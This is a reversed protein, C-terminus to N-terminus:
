EDLVYHWTGDPGIGIRWGQYRDAARMAKVDRGKGLRWLTVEDEPDLAKIPTEAFYPWVFMEQSTGARIRAGQTSLADILRAMMERGEGDASAAKLAAVPDKEGSRTFIPRVESMEMVVIIRAIDGTRAADIIRQRTQAVRAPLEAEDFIIEAKPDRAGAEAPKPVPSPPAPSAPAPSAPAPKAPAPPTQAGAPSASFTLLLALALIKM